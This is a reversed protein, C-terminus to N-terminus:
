LSTKTWYQLFEVTKQQLPKKKQQPNHCKPSKAISAIKAIEAIELEQIPNQTRQNTRTKSQTETKTRRLTSENPNPDLKLREVMALNCFENATKWESDDTSDPERDVSFNVSKLCLKKFVFFFQNKPFFFDM